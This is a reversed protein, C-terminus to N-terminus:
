PVVKDRDHDIWMKKLDRADSNDRTLNGREHEGGLEAALLLCRLKVKGRRGGLCFFPFLIRKGLCYTATGELLM